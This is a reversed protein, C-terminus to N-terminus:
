TAWAELGCEYHDLTGVVNIRPEVSACRVEIGQIILKDGISLTVTKPVLVIGKAEIEDANGRSASADTRIATKKLMDDLRVIACGVIMAPAFVPEGYKDNGARRYITATVNPSFAM